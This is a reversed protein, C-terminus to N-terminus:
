QGFGHGPLGGDVGLYVSAVYRALIEEKSARAELLLALVAERLQRSLTRRPSLFANKALQQTLTSAGQAAAHARLDAALARAIAIPDVGPHLYFNRDEAALVASRCAPPPEEPSTGLTPGAGGIVAPVEPELERRAAAPPPVALYTRVRADLRM